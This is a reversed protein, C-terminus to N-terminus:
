EIFKEDRVTEGDQTSPETEQNRHHVCSTRSRSFKIDSAALPTRIDSGELSAVRHLATERDVELEMLRSATMM